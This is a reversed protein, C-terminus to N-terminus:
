CRRWLRDLRSAKYYKSQGPSQLLWKGSKGYDDVLFNDLQYVVIKSCSVFFSVDTFVINDTNIVRINIYINITYLITGVKVQLKRVSQQHESTRNSKTIHM